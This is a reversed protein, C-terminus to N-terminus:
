FVRDVRGLIDVLPVPCVDRSDVSRRRDDGLVFCHGNPVKMPPLARPERAVDAPALLIAYRAGGNTEAV